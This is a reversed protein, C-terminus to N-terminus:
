ANKPMVNDFLEKLCHNILGNELSHLAEPPCAATFVGGPSGGYDIDFFALWNHTQMLNRLAEENKTQSLNMMYDMNLLRCNDPDNSEYVEPTADCMRCIRRADDRYYASRGCIGDGGQIDGNIFALPIKLNINKTKNGLTLPIDNLANQCQATCFSQLVTDFLINLHLSKLTSGMDKWQQASYFNCEIPIYGLPRM